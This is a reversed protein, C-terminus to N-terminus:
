ITTEVLRGDEVQYVFGRIFDKHAIFPSAHLRRMSQGVDQFPDKFGEISWEPRIGTETEIAEKIDAEVVKQLSCDTHHLLIIEKTGLLRQSLVLSRVVDDTVVGGANRIVHADGHALGLMQFIDMRSDMCAVIALMRRPRLALDHDAFGEVYRDNNALLDAANPVFEPQSESVFSVTTRGARVLGGCQRTRIPFRGRSRHLVLGSATSAVIPISGM